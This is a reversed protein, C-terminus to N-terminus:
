IKTALTFFFYAVDNLSGTCVTTMNMQRRQCHEGGFKLQYVTWVGAVRRVEYAGDIENVLDLFSM